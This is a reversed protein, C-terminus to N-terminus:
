PYYCVKEVNELSYDIDWICTIIHSLEAGFSSYGLDKELADLLEQNM